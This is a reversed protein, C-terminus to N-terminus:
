RRIIRILQLNVEVHSCSFVCIKGTFDIIFLALTMDKALFQLMPKSFRLATIDMQVLETKSRLCLTVWVMNRLNHFHYYFVVPGILLAIQQSSGSIKQAKKFTNTEGNQLCKLEDGIFFRTQKAVTNSKIIESEFSITALIM